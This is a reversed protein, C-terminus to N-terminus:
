VVRERTPLILQTDEVTAHPYESVLLRAALSIQRPIDTSGFRRFSRVTTDIIPKIDGPIRIDIDTGEIQEDIGRGINADRDAWPDTPHPIEGIGDVLAMFDQGTVAAHRNVRALFRGYTPILMDYGGGGYESHFLDRIKDLSGSENEEEDILELPASFSVDPVARRVLRSSILRAYPTLSRNHDGRWTWIPDEREDYDTPPEIRSRFDSYAVPNQGLDSGEVDGFVIARAPLNKGSKVEKAVELLDAASAVQEVVAQEGDHGLAELTAGVGHDPNTWHEFEQPDAEVVLLRDSM